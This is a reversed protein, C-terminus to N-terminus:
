NKRHVLAHNDYTMNKSSDMINRVAEITQVIDENTIHRHTVARIRGYGMESFTVGQEELLELFVQWSHKKEDVKFIVINTQIDQPNLYVGSIKSLGLALRKARKHDEDLRDTMKELAIIAPAAMIGAQRMGGGLMKRIRRVKKIFERNGAVISGIPASLGKSLCFQVSDVFKTIERVEVNLATAANFIRAGDLHIPTNKEFSFERVKKMYRLPLVKGGCRNHSSELCILSPLAFQPDDTDFPFANELDGLALQGDKQTKVPEYIIGGCVSPGGAEFIYIDSEDGVIVKSGRPCHAMIAALNAMTGSPMFCAEEMGVLESAFDELRNVSKDDAYVDDGLEASQISDMMEKTPLTITDSLYNM